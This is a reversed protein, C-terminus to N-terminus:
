GCGSMDDLCTDPLNAFICVREPPRTVLDSLIEHATCTPLKPNLTIFFLDGLYTLAPFRLEELSAMSVIALETSITELTPFALQALADNEHINLGLGGHVETLAPFQLDQLTDNRWINVSALLSDSPLDEGVTTLAEFRAQELAPNLIVTLRQGVSELAPLDLQRLAANSDIVLAVGTRRLAPLQLTTMTGQQRIILEEGVEELLPLALTELGLPVEITLSGPITVCAAIDQLRAVDDLVLNYAEPCAGPPADPADGDDVDDIRTDGHNTDSDNGDQGSVPDCASGLLLVLAALGHFHLRSM